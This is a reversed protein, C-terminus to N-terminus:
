GPLATIITPEKVMQHIQNKAVKYREFYIRAVEKIFKYGIEFNSECLQFLKEADIALVESDELCIATLTYERPEMFCAAGFLEGKQRKEFSIGVDEGPDIRRLSVMGKTVVYIRDAKDGRNYIKAGKEYSQKETIKLLEELEEESFASSIKLDKIENIEVM